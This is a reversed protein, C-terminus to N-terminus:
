CLSKAAATPLQLQLNWMSQEPNEIWCGVLWVLVWPPQLHVHMQQGCSWLSSAQYDSEDFFAWVVVLQDGRLTCPKVLTASLEAVFLSEFVEFVATCYLTACTAPTCFCCAPKYVANLAAIKRQWSCARDLLM